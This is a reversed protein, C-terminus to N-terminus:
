RGTPRRHATRRFQRRVQRAFIAAIVGYIPRNNRKEASQKNNRGSRPSPALASPCRRIPPQAAPPAHFTRASAPWPIRFSGPSSREPLFYRCDRPHPFLYPGADLAVLASVVRPSSLSPGRRPPPRRSAPELPFGFPSSSM